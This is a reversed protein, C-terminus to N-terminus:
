SVTGGDEKFIVGNESKIVDDPLGVNEVLLNDRLFSLIARLAFAIFLNLHVTNRPCHLRRCFISCVYLKPGNIVKMHRKRERTFYENIFVPVTTPFTTMIVACYVAFATQV